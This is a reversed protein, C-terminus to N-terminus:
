IVPPRGARTMTWATRLSIPQRRGADSKWGEAFGGFWARRAEKSRERALTLAVWDALYVAALPWPLNRRALWVRNRAELRYWSEHRANRAPPHCMVAAADYEIRYGMELLRWSLDTEEHGFFFADPFGGAEEFASRRIACAGGAFTTVVSSREPDGARLRPVHWRASGGGDPDAVRFSLVALRPEAAFRAPVHEGLGAPDPYWGDDDLFLVVDGSCERVAANRGGSVGANEALRLVSVGDPQVPVDAGNGVVIVEAGASRLPVTSEVARGLEDPRNGMTLIVVSLKM